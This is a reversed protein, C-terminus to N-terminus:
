RASPAVAASAAILSVFLFLGILLVFPPHPGSFLWAIASGLYLVAAIDQRSLATAVFAAASTIAVAIVAIGIRHFPGSMAVTGYAWLGSIIAAVLALLLHAASGAARRNTM